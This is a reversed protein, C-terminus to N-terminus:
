KVSRAPDFRIAKRSLGYISRHGRPRQANCTAPEGNAYHNCRLPARAPGPRAPARIGCRRPDVDRPHKRRLRASWLPSIMGDKGAHSRRGSRPRWRACRPICQQWTSSPVVPPLSNFDPSRTVFDTKMGGPEVIKMGIGVQNLEVGHKRELGGAGVERRSLDLQFGRRDPRRNVSHQHVVWPREGPFVPHIGEDDLHVGAPQHRDHATIVRFASCSLADPM